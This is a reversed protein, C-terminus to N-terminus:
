FKFPGPIAKNNGGTPPGFYPVDFGRVKNNKITNGGVVDAIGFDGHPGDVGADFVRNNIYTGGAASIFLGVDANGRVNNRSVEVPSTFVTLIASGAFNSPGLWQNGYVLNYTVLGLAGFGLQVGNPALNAQTASPFVKNHHVTVNVDGNAVIGTKQWRDVVNHAIEVMVTGPHSGDFPANRVEIANGEQCGSPGKNIDVVRNHTISGSAGEFLIGRLRNAGGQCVNALGMARVTLQRVHATAGGAEVVGGTFNGLPPDVAEIYHGKGDLTFGDPITITADTWCDGDLSMTSGVTTFTCNGAASAGGAILFLAAFVVLGKSLRM